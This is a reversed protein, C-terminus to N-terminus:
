CWGVSDVLERSVCGVHSVFNHTRGPMVFACTVVREEGKGVRQKCVRCTARSTPAISISYTSPRTKFGARKKMM